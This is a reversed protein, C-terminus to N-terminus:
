KLPINADFYCNFVIPFTNIPDMDQTLPADDCGPLLLANVIWTKYEEPYNELFGSYPNNKLNRAGHDSQIIIVSPDELSYVELINEVMKHAVRLFFKYNELYRKWNLAEKRHAVINGSESFVFPSHPLMLHVYVFKPSSVHKTTINKVTFLITNKHLMFSPDQNILHRLLTNQIVLITYDDILVMDSSVKEPSEEILFDVPMPSANPFNARRQDYAILTYGKAKLYEMVRNHSMAEDFIDFKKWDLPYEEYNLRTAIERLTSTSGAHSQEAVYFDNTQLFDVFENVEDYNWYQRAVEFGAAEDFIIYFIDPHKAEAQKINAPETEKIDVVNRHKYVEAPIIKIANFGVLVSFILVAVKWIQYSTRNNFHTIQWTFYIAAFGYFPLFNYTEIQIVDLSRLWDFVLGYTHFFVLLLMAAVASQLYKGRTLLGLVLYVVLGIGALLVSLKLLSSLLVLNVNNACHFVAPYLAVLLPLSSLKVTNIFSPFRTGFM